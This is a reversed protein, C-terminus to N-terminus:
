NVSIVLHDSAAGCITGDEALPFIRIEYLGQSKFDALNLLVEGKRQAHVDFRGAVKSQVQTNQEEFLLNTRTIEVAFRAADAVGTVDVSLRAQKNSRSLNIFGKSGFYGSNDFSIAPMVSQRRPLAIAKITLSAGAPVLFRFKGTKGGLSWEPLGRLPFLLRQELKGARFYAHARRKLEFCPYMDNTYLLDAGAGQAAPEPLQLNLEVFDVTFCSRSGLDFDIFQPQRGRNKVSLTGDENWAILPATKEDPISICDRLRQKQWQSAGPEPLGTGPDIKEFKGTKSKWAFVLIRDRNEAISDKLYGFPFIPEFANVMLCNNIDRTMQPKKTMGDLSNRCTYAGKIQDPLGLFLVQPDDEIRSYLGCLASRIANNELGAEQWPLNNTWLLIASLLCTVPVLLRSCSSLAPLKPCPILSATLFFCLPVTSLYALRSGQLDDAINFLKYVPLLALLFWGALFLLHRRNEKQSAANLIAAAFSCGIAAPWAKSLIHHSGLLSKNIPVALMTLAHLWGKLFEGPNSIFFLSDDYGGVFTGLALRRVVFYVALLFWFPLTRMLPKWSQRVYASITQSGPLQIGYVLEYLVFVAPLTVAMEKSSLALSASTMSLTLPLIRCTKSYRIYFYISYLCFATVISDVRGTIWSVAEPHLPYLAFLTAAAVPWLPLPSQQAQSSKSEPSDKGKDQLLQSGILFIALTSALHFALNTLRFGLGNLGWLAYDSVMFVSILPRYFRTTTGDLWSTYFNRLVLEPRHIAQCLWTLHVFDDGNFFNFLVPSYCVLTVLTIAAFVAAAAARSGSSTQKIQESQIEPEV